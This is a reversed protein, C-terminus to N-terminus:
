SLKSVKDRIYIKNYDCWKKIILNIFRSLYIENLFVNSWNDYRQCQIGLFFFYTSTSIYPIILKEEESLRTISEYGKLFSELKLNFQTEDKELNYLQMIYYGLDQCLMGNGCFDFDFITIEDNGFLHMNDFWIDTHVAGFRVKQKDINSLSEKLVEKLDAMYIMEEQETNLFLKLYDFYNELLIEPTYTVRDLNFNQTLSHIKGITEGVKFQIEAAYNLAKAGRAYSFLVGFRIGEPANLEKIYHGDPDAIPYSVSIHNDKLLNILRIEELIETKTRWNLSYIRFVFKDSETTVLYTHSIGTKLLKCDTKSRFKYEKQLFDALHKTSLTSNSVPFPLM